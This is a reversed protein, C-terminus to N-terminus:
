EDTRGGINKIKRTYEDEGKNTDITMSENLENVKNLKDDGYTSKMMSKMTNIERNDM